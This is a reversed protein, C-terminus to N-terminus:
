AFLPMSAPQAAPESQAAQGADFKGHQDGWGDFGPRTERSFLDCRFANPTRAAVIEYFEDPKRSHERAEGEIIEGELSEIGDFLSNFQNHTQREDGFVGLLVSEHYGANRYGTGRRPKGNKTVKRWILESKYKAGIERLLWMSRDLTPPCAWLGVIANCRALEGFPFKAIEEWPMTGYHGGGSKSQGRASYTDFQTPPDIIIVDYGFMRLPDFPWKM